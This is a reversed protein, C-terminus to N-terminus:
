SEEQKGQEGPVNEEIIVDDARYTGAGDDETDRTIELYIMRVEREFYTRVTGVDKQRIEGVCGQETMVRINLRGDFLYDDFWVEVVAMDDGECLAELFAQRSSGDDNNKMVGDVPFALRRHEANTSRVKRLPADVRVLEGAEEGRDEPERSQEKPKGMFIAGMAICIFAPVYQALAFLLVGALIFLGGLIKM